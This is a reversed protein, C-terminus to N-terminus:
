GAGGFDLHSNLFHIELIMSFALKRFKEQMKVVIFIYYPDKRNGLFMTVAQEFRVWAERENVKIESEFNGVLFFIWYDVFVIEM